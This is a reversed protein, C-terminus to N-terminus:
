STKLFQLACHPWAAKFGHAHLTPNSPYTISTHVFWGFGSFFIARKLVFLCTRKFFHLLPKPNKFTNQHHYNSSRKTVSEVISVEISIHYLWTYKYQPLNLIFSGSLLVFHWLWLIYQILCLPFRFHLDDITGGTSVYRDAITSQVTQKNSPGGM